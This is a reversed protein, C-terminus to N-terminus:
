CQSSRPGSVRIVMGFKLGCSENALSNPRNSCSDDGDRGMEAGPRPGKVTKIPGTSNAEKGSSTEGRKM